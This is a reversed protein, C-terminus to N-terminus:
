KVNNAALRQAMPRAMKEREREIRAKDEALADPKADDPPPRFLAAARFKLADNSQM